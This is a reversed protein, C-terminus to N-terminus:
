ASHHRGTAATREETNSVVESPPRSVTSNTPEHVVEENMATGKMEDSTVKRKKIVEMRHTPRGGKPGPTTPCWQCLGSDKLKTMAAMACQATPYKRSNSRCVDRITVSGAPHRRIWEYLQQLDRREATLSVKKLVRQAEYAFWRALAIGHQMSTADCLLPDVEEGAAYRSLHIVLALRAAQATLHSTWHSLAEDIQSQRLGLDTMFMDIHNRAEASLTVCGTRPAGSVVEPLAFLKNIVGAFGEETAQDMEEDTWCQPRAEPSAILLRSTLECAGGQKAFKQTFLDASLTGTLSVAAPTLTAATRGEITVSRGGYLDLWAQRQIAAREGAGSTRKLWGDLEQPCVLLGRSQRSLLRSLSPLSWDVTLSREAIPEAPPLNASPYRRENYRHNALKQRYKPFLEQRQQEAVAQRAQLPVIAAAIIAEHPSPGENVLATWLIAPESWGRKLEIRRTGGIASALVSLVPLAVASTDCNLSNAQATVFQQVPQPLSEVPFPQFEPVQGPVLYQLNVWPLGDDVDAPMFAPLSGSELAGDHQPDPEDPPWCSAAASVEGSARDLEARHRERYREEAVMEKLSRLSENEHGLLDTVEQLRSDPFMESLKVPRRLKRTAM